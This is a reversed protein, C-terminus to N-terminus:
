SIKLEKFNLIFLEFGFYPDVQGSKIRYDLDYLRDLIEQAKEKSVLNLNKLALQVRYPHITMTKAIMDKNKGQSTLYGVQTLIRFQSAMLAILRVPEEKMTKLDMYIKYAKDINGQMLNEAIAFANQELKLSVLAEVDELEIKSSYLCLKNAEMTFKAIDNGCRFLLEKLADASIIVNKKNFYQIATARLQDESLAIVEKIQGYKQILKYIESRTSINNGELFFIIDSYPVPNMIFKKLVDYKQDKEFDVKEKSTTLFYPNTVVIVKKPSSLSPQSAEYVIEDIPVEKASLSVYNFEDEDKGILTEKLIKLQKKLTPYQDGYLFYVM